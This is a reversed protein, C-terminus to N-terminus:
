PRKFLGKATPNKQPLCPQFHNLEITVAPSCDKALPFLNYIFRRALAACHFSGFLFHQM